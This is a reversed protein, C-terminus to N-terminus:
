HGSDLRALLKIIDSASPIGPVTDLVNGKADTVITVPTLDEGYRERVHDRVAQREAMPLGSLVDYEPQHAAVYADLTSQDEGLDTGVGWIAVDAAGFKERILKVEPQRAKCTACHTAMATVLNLRAPADSAPLTLALKGAGGGGGNTVRHDLANRLYPEVVYAQGNPSDDPNEYFTVLSGLPVDAASQSGGAPWRVDVKQVSPADGAGIFMTMSNVASRGDGCRYERLLPAGGVYAKVMVGYGSRPSWEDTPASSKNGGVFRLAIMRAGETDAYLEDGLRNRYLQVTPANASVVCFDKWGDRDYDFICFTRGDGPHDLGSVGGLDYFQKGQDSFFLHDREGGSFSNTPTNSGFDGLDGEDRATVKLSQDTRV